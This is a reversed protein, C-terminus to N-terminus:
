LEHKYSFFFSLCNTDLIILSYFILDLRQWRRKENLFFKSLDFFFFWYLHFSFSLFEEKSKSEIKHQVVPKPKLKENRESLFSLNQLAYSFNIQDDLSNPILKSSPLSKYPKSRWDQSQVLSFQSFLKARSYLRSVLKFNLGHSM